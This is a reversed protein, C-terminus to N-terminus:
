YSYHRYESECKDNVNFLIEGNKIMFPIKNMGSSDESYWDIIINNGDITYTGSENSLELGATYSRWNIVNGKITYTAGLSLDGYKTEVTESYEWTGQLLQVVNPKSLIVILIIALTVVLVGIISFMIIKKKNFKTKKVTNAMQTEIHLITYGCNVCRQASDSIEKGCEPCNILAM